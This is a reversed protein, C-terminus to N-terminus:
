PGGAPTGTGSAGPVPYALLVTQRGTIPGVELQSVAPRGSALVQFVVPPATPQATSGEIGAAVLRGDAGRLLVNNLLPQERLIQAFLPSSGTRDLAAVAPHRVLLSAMADLSGFYEDLLATATTALRGAEAEVEQARELRLRNGSWLAAALVPLLLIIAAVAV